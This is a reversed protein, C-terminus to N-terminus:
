CNLRLSWLDIWGHKYVELSVVVPKAAGAGAGSGSGIAELLLSALAAGDSIDLVTAKNEGLSLQAAVEALAQAYARRSNKAHHHHHHHNTPQRDIM